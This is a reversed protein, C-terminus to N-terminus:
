DIRGSNSYPNAITRSQGQNEPIFVFGKDQWKGNVISFQRVAGNPQQEQALFWQESENNLVKSIARNVVCHSVIVLNEYKSDQFWPSIDEIFQEVRKVVDEKSEGKPPKVKYNGDKEAHFDYLKALNPYKEYCQETTLGTFMGFDQEVLLPETVMRLSPIEKVIIEGTQFSRKFPSSIVLTTEPNLQMDAFFRACELAQSKGLSTLPIEANSCDEWIDSNVQHSAEGHRITFINKAM